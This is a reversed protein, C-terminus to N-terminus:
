VDVERYSFDLLEVPHMAKMNLGHQKIGLSIQILCGPNGTAIIDANTDAINRMKKELLQMSMEPQLVNYIGASGCCWDSEKLEILELGPIASLM